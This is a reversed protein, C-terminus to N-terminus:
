FLLIGITGDEMQCVSSHNIPIRSKQICQDILISRNEYDTHLRFCLGRIPDILILLNMRETHLKLRLRRRPDILFSYNEFDVHGPPSSGRHRLGGAAFGWRLDILFSDSASLFSGHSMRREVLSSVSESNSQQQLLQVFLNVPGKQQM